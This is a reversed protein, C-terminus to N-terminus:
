PSSTTYKAVSRSFSFIYIRSLKMERRMKQDRISRKLLAAVKGFEAFHKWSKEDNETPTQHEIETCMRCLEISAQKHFSFQHHALMCSDWLRNRPIGSIQEWVWLRFSGLENGEDSNRYRILFHGASGWVCTQPRIAQQDAAWM